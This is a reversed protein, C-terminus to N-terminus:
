SPLFHCFIKLYTDDSAACDSLIVASSDNLRNRACRNHRDTIIYRCGRILCRFHVANTGKSVVTVFHDFVRLYLRNDDGRDIGGMM